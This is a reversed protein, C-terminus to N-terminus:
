KKVEKEFELQIQKLAKIYQSESRFIESREPPYGIGYSYMSALPLHSFNRLIWYENAQGVVEDNPNFSFSAESRLGCWVIQASGGAAMANFNYRMRFQVEVTANAPVNDRHFTVTKLDDIDPDRFTIGRRSKYNYHDAVRTLVVAGNILLRTDYYTYIRSDDYLWYREGLNAVIQLDTICEPSTLVLNGVRAWDTYTWGVNTTSNPVSFRNGSRNNCNEFVGECRDVSPHLIQITGGDELTIETTVGDVVTSSLEQDGAGGGGVIAPPIVECLEIKTYSEEEELTYNCDVRKCEVKPKEAFSRNAPFNTWGGSGTLDTTYEIDVGQNSSLDSALWGIYHIGEELVIGFEGYGRDSSPTNVTLEELALPNSCCQGLFPWIREGTNSNNDRIIIQGLGRTDIWGEAELHNASTSYNWDNTIGQDTITAPYHTPLPNPLGTWINSPNDHTENEWETYNVGNIPQSVYYVLVSDCPPEQCCEEPIVVKQANLNLGIFLLFIIKKM